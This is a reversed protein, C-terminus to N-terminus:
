QNAEKQITLIEAQPLQKALGKKKVNCEDEMFRDGCLAMDKTTEHGAGAGAVFFVIIAFLELTIFGTQKKM